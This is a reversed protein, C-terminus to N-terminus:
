ERLVITGAEDSVLGSSSMDSVCLESVSVFYYYPDRGKSM